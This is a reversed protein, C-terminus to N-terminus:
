QGSWECAVELDTVLMHGPAHTIALPPKSKELVVQTTVGCAWFVPIEDKNITVSDGFDPHHVDRIGIKAPDGWHVPEGHAHPFRASVRAATQAQEPPMPRMSVVLPGAFRPTPNCSINTIYMPINKKEEVHRVPCGALRLAHDFTFSCGLLFSVLDERWYDCVDLTEATWRGENMIRYRPVDSRVDAGPAAQSSIPNGRDLIELVPCPRPNALCFNSFESAWSEPLIVLNAQERGPALGATPGTWKGTRCLRRIFAPEDHPRYDKLGAYVARAARHFISKPNNKM